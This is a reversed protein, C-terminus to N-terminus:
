NTGGTRGLPHDEWIRIARIRGAIGWTKGRCHRFQASDKREERKYNQGEGDGTYLKEVTLFSPVMKFANM